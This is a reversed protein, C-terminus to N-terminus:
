HVYANSPWRNLEVKDVYWARLVIVERLSELAHLVLNTALSHAYMVLGRVWDQM